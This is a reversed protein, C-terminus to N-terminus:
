KPNRIADDDLWDQQDYDDGGNTPALAADRMLAWAACQKCLSGDEDWRGIIRHCHGPSQDNDDVDELANRILEKLREVEARLERERRAHLPAATRAHAIFYAIPLVDEGTVHIWQDCPFAQRTAVDAFCCGEKHIVYWDDTIDESLRLTEAILEDPTM